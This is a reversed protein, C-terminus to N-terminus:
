VSSCGCTNVAGSDMGNQLPVFWWLFAITNKFTFTRRTREVSPSQSMRSLRTFKRTTTPHKTKTKKGHEESKRTYVVSSSQKVYSPSYQRRLNVLCVSKCDTSNSRQCPPITDGEDYERSTLWETCEKGLSQPIINSKRSPLTGGHVIYFEASNTKIKVKTIMGKGIRFKSLM